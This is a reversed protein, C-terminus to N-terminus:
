LNAVDLCSWSYLKAVSVALIGVATGGRRRLTAQTNQMLSALHKSAYITPDDTCTCMLSDTLLQLLRLGQRGAVYM